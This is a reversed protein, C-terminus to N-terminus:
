GTFKGASSLAVASPALKWRFAYEPRSDRNLENLLQSQSLKLDSQVQPSSGFFRAYNAFLNLVCARTHIDLTSKKDQAFYRLEGNRYLSRRWYEYGRIFSERTRFGRDQLELLASLIYCTHFNDVWSLSQAQGYKWSGDAAQFSNSTEISTKILKIDGDVQTLALAGLYNANHILELTSEAYRFYTGTHLKTLYKRVGAKWSGGVGAVVLARVCFYTAIINSTEKAYAGWRLTADFEYGWGGDSKQNALIQDALLGVETDQSTSRDVTLAELAQALNVVMKTKPIGFLLRFNVGGRKGLQIFLRQQRASTLVNACPSLLADYYDYSLYDYSQMFKVCSLGGSFQQQTM